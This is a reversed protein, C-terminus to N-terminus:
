PRPIVYGKRGPGLVGSPGESREEKTRETVKGEEGEVLVRGGGVGPEDPRLFFACVWRSQLFLPRHPPLVPIVDYGRAAGLRGRM